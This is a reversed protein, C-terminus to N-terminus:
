HYYKLKYIMKQLQKFPDSVQFGASIADSVNLSFILRAFVNMDRHGGNPIIPELSIVYTIRFLIRSM